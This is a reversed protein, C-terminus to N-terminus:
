HDGVIQNVSSRFADIGSPTPPGSARFRVRANRDLLLVNGYMRNTSLLLVELPERAYNNFAVHFDHLDPDTRGRQWRQVFGSLAQAAFSENVTVDFWRGNSGAASVFAERWPRLQQDAVSRFAVMVLTVPTKSAEDSIVIRKTSLSTTKIRPFPKAESTPILGEDHKSVTGHGTDKAYERLDKLISNPEQLPSVPQSSSSNSSSSTTSSTPPATTTGRNSSVSNKDPITSSTVFPRVQYEQVHFATGARARFRTSSYQVAPTNKFGLHPVRRILLSESASRQSRIPLGPRSLIRFFNKATMNPHSPVFIIASTTRLSQSSSSM